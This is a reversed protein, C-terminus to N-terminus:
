QDKDLIGKQWITIGDYYIRTLRHFPIFKTRLDSEIEMGDRELSVIQDGRATSRDSPMGRNIYEITARSFEYRPDYRLKLLLARSTRM